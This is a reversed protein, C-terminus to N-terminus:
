ARLGVFSYQMGCVILLRRACANKGFSTLDKMYKMFVKAIINLGYRKEGTIIFM